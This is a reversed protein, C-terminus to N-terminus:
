GPRGGVHTRAQQLQTDFFLNAMHPAMSALVSNCQCYITPPLRDIKQHNVGFSLNCAGPTSSSYLRGRKGGRGSSSDTMLTYEEYLPARASGAVASYMLTRRFAM